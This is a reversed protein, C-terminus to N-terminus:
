RDEMLLALTFSQLSCTLAHVFMPKTRRSRRSSRCSPGPPVWYSWWEHYSADQFCPTTHPLCCPQGQSQPSGAVEPQKIVISHETHFYFTLGTGKLLRELAEGPMLTGVVPQTQINYLSDDALFLVELKSQHSFELIARPFPGAPINFDATTTGAISRISVTIFALTISMLSVAQRTRRVGMSIGRKAKKPM